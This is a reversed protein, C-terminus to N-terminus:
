GIRDYRRIDPVETVLAGLKLMVQKFHETGLHSEYAADDDWEEVFVFDAPDPKNQLLEYSRCGPENRSPEIMGILLERLEEVKDSRAKVRAVVRLGSGAM